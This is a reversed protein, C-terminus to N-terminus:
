DAVVGCARWAAARNIERRLNELFWRRVASKRATSQITLTM